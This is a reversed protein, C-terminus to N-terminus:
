ETSRDKNDIRGSLAAAKRPVPNFAGTKKLVSIAGSVENKAFGVANLFEGMLRPSTVAAMSALWPSITGTVAAGGTSGAALKGTLSRPTIKAMNLGAIEAALDRGSAVELEKLLTHRFAFNDRTTSTLKRIATDMSARDGLSLAREMENTMKTVQEYERTMTAYEPVAEVIKDKVTNRLDTVFARSNKSPHYFDDLKRKLTDLGLATNDGERTGWKSVDEILATIEGQADRGITSRSFDLGGEADLTINYRKRSMLESLKQKIPRIDINRADKGIEELRARYTEGRQRKVEGLASQADQLVDEGSTKGRMGKVFGSTESTLGTGRKAQEIAAQGEGTTAGIVRSVTGGGIDSAKSGAKAALRLPDVMEGLQAMTKGMSALGPVKAMAMGGGTLLASMDLLVSAPDEAITTNLVELSGYKQGFAEVLTDFQQEHQQEGPILKEAAGFAMEGLGQATDMPHTLTTGVDNLMSVASGPLNTLATTALDATASATQMMSAIVGRNTLEKYAGVQVPNLEGAEYKATMAALDRGQPAGQPQGPQPRPPAQQRVGSQSPAQQPQPQPQPQTEQFLNRGEATDAAQPTVGAESNLLNRGEM